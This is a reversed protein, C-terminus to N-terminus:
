KVTAPVTVWEAEFGAPIQYNKEIEPFLFFGVDPQEPRTIAEIEPWRGRKMQLKATGSLAGTVRLDLSHSTGEWEISEWKLGLELDMPGAYISLLGFLRGNVKAGKPITLGSAQDKIPRTLRGVVPDGASASAPDVNQALAVRIKLGESLQQTRGPTASSASAAAAPPDDFLLKSEGLFQHCGSFVTRNHSERADSSLMRVDVVSPLLVDVASIRVKTYDLATTSQCIELESPLPDTRIELRLLDLTKANVTFTGSYGTLRNIQQNSVVYGSRTLPVDFGYELLPIEGNHSEGKFVFNPADSAFIAMLFSGFAGTSTTGLKVIESLERDQFRGEGVWSYMESRGSLAVDLRLRDMSAVRMGNPSKNYDALIKECVSANRAHLVHSSVLTQREVTETCLYNPLRSLSNAVKRRIELLAQTPDVAAHLGLQGCLLLGFLKRMGM